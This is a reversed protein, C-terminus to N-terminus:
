GVHELRIGGEKFPQMVSRQALGLLVGDVVLPCMRSCIDNSLHPSQSGLIHVSVALDCLSRSHFLLCSM